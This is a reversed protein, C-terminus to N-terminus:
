PVRELASRLSARTHEIDRFHISVMGLMAATQVNALTDDVYVVDFAKVGLSDLVALYIQPSPKAHGIVASNFVGDFSNAIGLQALDVALRTTANTLLYAPYQARYEQVFDLLGWDVHGASASWQRVIDTGLVHPFQNQLETAVAAHWEEDTIEGTIAARLIDPAFAVSEIVGHPLGAATEVRHAIEDDRHRIVGDLDLLLARITV